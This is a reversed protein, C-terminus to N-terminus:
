SRLHLSDRSWSPHGTRPKLKPKFVSETYMLVKGYFKDNTKNNKFMKFTM